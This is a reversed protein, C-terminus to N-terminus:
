PQDTSWHQIGDPGPWDTFDPLLPRVTAHQYAGWWLGAGYALDDLTRVALWTPLSVPPRDAYWDRVHRGVALALLLRGRPFTLLLPVALPWWARTVADAFLRGAGLHGSLALRLSETTPVGVPGLERPLLAATGAAVALATRPLGAALAAWVVASWGSMRVPSVADGHLVSLPAASRGYKFRQRVFAPWDARPLHEVISEPQYRVQGGAAALRWVLDVDEGFRLREDFGGHAHLASRRVVIAASPLYSVRGGPRVVAPVAGLDLSSRRQEYRDLGSPGSRSRVRPAVAVVEPDDFYPLLTELWGATPRV